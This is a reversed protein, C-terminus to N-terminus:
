SVPIRKWLRITGSLTSADAQVISISTINSSTNTWIGCGVLNWTTNNNPVMTLNYKVPRKSGSLPYIEHKSICRAGSDDFGVGLFTIQSGGGGWTNGNYFGINDEDYTTSAGNFRLHFATSGVVICDAELLYEKDTNGDLNEFIAGASGVNLVKEEVLEYGLMNTITHEENWDSPQILSNDSGDEKESEFLHKVGM